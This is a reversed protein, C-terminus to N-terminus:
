GNKLAPHKARMRSDFEEISMTDGMEVDRLGERIAEVELAREVVEAMRQYSSADQIVVEARGNMTLVVPKGTKKLQKVFDPTKRKFDSISRIDRTINLM